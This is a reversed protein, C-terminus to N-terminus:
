RSGADGSLNDSWRGVEACSRRWTLRRWGQSGSHPFEHVAVVGERRSHTGLVGSSTGPQKSGLGDYALLM